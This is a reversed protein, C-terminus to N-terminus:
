DNKRWFSSHYSTTMYIYDQSEPVEDLSKTTVWLCIISVTYHHVVNLTGGLESDKDPKETAKSMATWTSIVQNVSIFSLSPIEVNWNVSTQSDVRSHIGLQWSLGSIVLYWLRNRRFVSCGAVWSTHHIINMNMFMNMNYDQWLGLDLQSSSLINWSRDARTPFKFLAKYPNYHRYNGIIM